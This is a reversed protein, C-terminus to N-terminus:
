ALGLVDTEASLADVAALREADDARLYEVLSSAKVRRHMGVTRYAIEGQELLGILFQHSVNSADAAQRTTLEAQALALERMAIRWDFGDL